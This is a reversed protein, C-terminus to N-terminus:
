RSTTEHNVDSITELVVDNYNITGIEDYQVEPFIVLSSKTARNLCCFIHSM